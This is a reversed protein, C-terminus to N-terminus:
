LTKKKAFRTITDSKTSNIVENKSRTGQIIGLAESRTKSLQKTDQDGADFWPKASRMVKYFLTAADHEIFSPDFVLKQLSSANFYNAGFFFLRVFLLTSKEMVMM